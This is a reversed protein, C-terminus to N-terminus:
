HDPQIRWRDQLWTRDFHEGAFVYRLGYYLSMQPVHGEDPVMVLESRFTAPRITDIYDKFAPVFETCRAADHEGYIMYLARGEYRDGHRLEGALSYMFESAHGIMPSSAIGAVFIEPRELIAFVTFLGANSGGYLVNRSDTRYERDIHPMLEEAIFRLFERSGGSGPRHAVVMPIMDRNRNTNFIGVVIMEPVTEALAGYAVTGVAHEYSPRSEADLLYLVPYLNGSDEYGDPLSIKIVREERLISSYFTEQRGLVLENDAQQAGAATWAVLM